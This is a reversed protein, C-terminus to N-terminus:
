LERALPLEIEALWTDLAEEVKAFEGSAAEAGKKKLVKQLSDVQAAFAKYKQQYRPVFFDFFHGVLGISLNPNSDQLM